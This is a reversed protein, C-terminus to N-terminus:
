ANLLGQKIMLKAKCDECCYLTREKTPNAAFIPAMMKAIKEVAKTTAFEKGCEVCAFLTDKALVEEKFWSPKLEIVDQEITLCDAEPCSMECYGCGTCISPNLRLTNDEANASLADVNCAGVCSLCLTCNSENVKVKAYHINSGTKVVGLDDVGVIRELRSAFIERKRQGQQNYNIYSDEIFSVEQIAKTLEDENRAVLIADKAFKKQYIDNIIRIAESTVESFEESFYVVQSGSMQTLTLLTAEDFFMSADIAFPLVGEKLDVELASMDIQNSIILPHTDKYFASTNYISDKSQPAYDLAGSPCISVCEGCNTCDIHSFELHKSVDIKTIATTPCVAECRGCIEERREHYQCISSDYTTFKGYAFNNINNRLTQLVEELSSKSPDFIGNQIKQNLALDFWVIQDVNLTVDKGEDDVVVQLSGIEGSVFKIINEDVHFLDFEDPDICALFDKRNEQNSVLLVRNSLEKTYQMDQSLDFRDAAIEYLKLVNNMQTPISDKSNKIYFDIEQATVEASINKNNSILFSQENINDLNDTVFIQENLPFDLGKENYYIYEQM